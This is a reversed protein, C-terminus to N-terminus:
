EEHVEFSLGSHAPHSKLAHIAADFAAREGGQLVPFNFSLKQPPQGSVPVVSALGSGASQWPSAVVLYGHYPVPMGYIDREQGWLHVIAKIM